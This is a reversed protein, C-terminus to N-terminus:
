RYAIVEADETYFILIDKIVIPSIHSSSDLYFSNIVTGDYANIKFVKKNQCVIWLNDSALLPGRCIAKSEEERDVQEAINNIWRIKGSNRLLNIIKGDDSLVFVANGNVVPSNSTKILIDWIVAGSIIDVAAFVGSLSAAFILDNHIVPGSDIDTLDLTGSLAGEVVLNSSWILSGTNIDLAFIEGTNSPFIVVKDNIGVSTGGNSIASVFSSVYRWVEEGTNIDYVYLENHITMQFLYDQYVSPSGQAPKNNNIKWRVEGNETNVNIVEGYSTSVILNNNKLALGGDINTNLSESEPFVNIKWLITGDELNIAALRGEADLAFLAKENGVPQSYIKNYTGEGDGIRRKWLFKPDENVLYNGAIHTSLNGIQNWSLNIIKDSLYIEEEKAYEDVILDNNIRIIDFRKGGLKEEDEKIGIYELTSDITSCGVLLIFLYIFAFYNKFLFM